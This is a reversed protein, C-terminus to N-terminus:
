YVHGMSKRWDSSEQQDDLELLQDEELLGSIRCRRRKKKAPENSKELSEIEDKVFYKNM